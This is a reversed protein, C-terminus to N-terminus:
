LFERKIFKLQLVFVEHNPAIKKKDLKCETILLQPRGPPLTKEEGFPIGEIRSLIRQCDYSDVEVPHILTEMTEQMLPHSQVVGESFSIQNEKGTLMQFRQNIRSDNAFNKDQVITRLEQVEKQLLPLSEIQQDIYFHDANDFHYRIANNTAEKKERTLATQRLFSIQEQWENLEGKKSIISSLVFFFPLILLISLYLILRQNSISFFRKM